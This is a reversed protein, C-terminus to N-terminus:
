KVVDNKVDNKIDSKVDNKIYKVGVMAENISMLHDAIKEAGNIINIYHIGEAPSIIKQEINEFVLQQLDNKLRDIEKEAEICYEIDVEHFRKSLNKTTRKIQVEVSKFINEIQDRVNTTINAGLKMIQENTM